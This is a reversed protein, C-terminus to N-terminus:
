RDSRLVHLEVPAGDADIVGELYGNGTLLLQTYLAEFVEARGQAGNPRHILSLVPHVDYRAGADQVVLPLAAAAEAIMRVVRFGVPNGLHAQKILSSTDRPSWAVRGSSAYAIVPGAKSAKTEPVEIADGKKLFDFIMRM